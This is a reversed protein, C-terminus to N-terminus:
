GLGCWDLFEALSVIPKNNVRAIRADFSDSAVDAAVLVDFDAKGGKTAQNKYGEMEMLPTWENKSALVELDQCRWVRGGVVPQGTFRVRKRKKPRPLSGEYGARGAGADARRHARNVDSPTAEVQVPEVPDGGDQFGLGRALEATARADALARHASTRRIGYDMCARTLSAGTARYTCLGKGFDIPVRGEFEYGMMQTHFPLNHAVLVAGRLLRTVPALVDAFVPAPGVMSATIGHVGTPGVDRQPNILTDYEDRIEWTESDLTVVAIEVIRDNASFGTTEVDVVVPHPKTNM